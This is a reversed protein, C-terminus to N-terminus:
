VNPILHSQLLIQLILEKFSGAILILYIYIILNDIIQPLRTGVVDMSMEIFVHLICHEDDINGWARGRYCYAVLIKFAHSCRGSLYVVVITVLEKGDALLSGLLKRRM